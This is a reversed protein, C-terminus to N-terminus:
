MGLLDKAEMLDATTFGETFREYANSLVRRGQEAKGQAQWLRSLSIAARLELMRAELEQAVELAQQFWSEAEAANEPTIALLLDGKLRLFEPLMARGTWHSAIEMGEDLLALGQEPKGGKGYVGAQIYLLLPWFIPPTKLGQYLDIGRRVQALGEEARDMGALAAGHLCTAVAWWVQFEHEEAIDLVAQARDEVLKVEGRWLHLLSTHFLAYAMSYPHNLMKALDVAENARKLARDPFGLMWLFLASTTFCAVGPNNGLRFRSSRHRNPDFYKIGKELHELGLRLNKYFALNYGLVLHGEVRMSTDDQREAMSLIKEGIQVGKEHEGLYTYLSSLGRLVPFLQPIEGAAQSLELARTYAEEVEKTYGKIALLARALSTQLVIEEQVLEPTSPTSSLVNLLDKTLNVAAHYWGRADYLLWLSDVFKSLQELDREEVWHGWATRVNEIDSILEELAAERGDGTLREWQRQTLDAYYTAHARRAAARFEPDQDLREAAYERITELMLLRPEGSEQDAQRTLSKDILSSLGDLIDVGPEDLLEIKGAAAEVAEFSCGGLFVSLLEFLRQDGTDLLDYSWDIADRLTQQRVPLDRAGGRLLKLRSGLRELLAQPSFLRIRAAALEIALPLGDLRWCIEAVAPANENTVKFDPKVAQAREIFLRVAEYQTIQEISPQKLDVKPLALPPVPFVYEGRVHLAERSTVLLKLQPCDRLLEVVRPAAGTVQEFNDLLLLMKKARLQGKLEDLLPRDSTERLGLTQAISTPVAEPDRIPALDVFYVGDKFSDILEAAAQLGMRTKGIGGPGTLTLLRVGESNLRKIIEDLEAERGILATPQAPLNNPIANFSYLPPFESLLDPVVLQWLREPNVLGKLRHEGMDRLTVDNPLQGRALEASASSLLVQGGHAASMVRQARTLTLYGGYGGGLDKLEGAQAAGTHIGMRVKVPTPHWAEHLLRRQAELAADVADGSTHFASAFADGIIQFVHGNHSEISQRLITNHRELLLNMEDPYNQALTASGEIDTFLFTVTGTPLLRDAPSYSTNM